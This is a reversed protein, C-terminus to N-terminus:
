EINHKITKLEIVQNKKPDYSISFGGTGALLTEGPLIYNNRLPIDYELNTVIISKGDESLICSVEEYDLMDFIDTFTKGSVKDNSNLIRSEQKESQPDTKNDLCQTMTEIEALLRKNKDMKDKIITRGCGSYLFSSALILVILSIFLRNTNM